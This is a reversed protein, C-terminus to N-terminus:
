GFIFIFNHTDTGGAGGDTLSLFKATPGIAPLAANGLWLLQEGPNLALQSGAGFLAYGDTGAPAVVLPHLNGEPNQIMVAQIQLGTGDVALANTGAMATLDITAAGAVLPVAIAAVASGAPTTAGSLKLTANLGNHTIAPAAAFPVDIALTEVVTLNAVATASISM